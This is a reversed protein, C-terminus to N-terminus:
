NLHQQRTTAYATGLAFGTDYFNGISSEVAENLPYEGALFAAVYSLLLVRGFPQKNLDVPHEKGEDDRHILLGQGMAEHIQDLLADLAERNQDIANILVQQHEVTRQCADCM